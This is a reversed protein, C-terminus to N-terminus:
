ARDYDHRCAIKKSKVNYGLVHFFVIEYKIFWQNEVGLKSWRRVTANILLYRQQEGDEIKKFNVKGIEDYWDKVVEEGLCLM